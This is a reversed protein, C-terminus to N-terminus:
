LIVKFFEKAIKNVLVAIAFEACDYTYCTTFGIGELVVNREKSLIVRRYSVYWWFSVKRSEEWATSRDRLLTGLERKTANWASDSPLLLPWSIKVALRTTPHDLLAKSRKPLGVRETSNPGGKKELQTM